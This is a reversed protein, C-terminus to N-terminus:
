LKLLLTAKKKDHDSIFKVFLFALSFSPLILLHSQHSSIAIFALPIIVIYDQTRLRGDLLLIMSLLAVPTFIDSMVLNTFWPLTTFGLAIIVTILIYYNFKKIYTKSFIYIVTVAIINQIVAVWHLSAFCSIIWSLFFTYTNSWHSTEVSHIARDVYGVTDVMVLPFGNHLHLLSMYASCCLIVFLTLLKGKAIDYTIGQNM